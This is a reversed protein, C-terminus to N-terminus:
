VEVSYLAAIWGEEVTGPLSLRNALGSVKRIVFATWGARFDRNGCAPCILNPHTEYIKFVRRRLDRIAPRVAREPWTRVARSVLRLRPHLDHLGEPDFTRLHGYAHFVAGCGPCRTLMRSLDERYPVTVLLYRRAVRCIEGLTPPLDETTLHELVEACLALDFSKSRFPLRAVSARVAPTRVRRLGRVSLDCAVVELRRPLRNTIDGRGCGVDLVTTVDRPVQSLTFAIRGLQVDDLPEDWRDTEDFIRQNVRDVPPGPSACV